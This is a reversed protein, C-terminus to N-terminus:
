DDEQESWAEDYSKRNAYYKKANSVVQKLLIIDDDCLGEVKLHERIAGESFFGYLQGISVNLFLSIVMSVGEFSVAVTQRNEIFYKIKDFLRQGDEASICLQSGILSSVKIRNQKDM